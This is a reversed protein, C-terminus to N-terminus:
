LLKRMILLSELWEKINELDEDKCFIFCDLRYSRNNDYTSGHLEAIKLMVKNYDLNFEKAFQGISLYEEIQKEQDYNKAIALAKNNLSFQRTIIKYFM